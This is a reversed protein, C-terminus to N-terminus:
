VVHIYFIFCCQADYNIDYMIKFYYTIVKIYVNVLAMNNKAYIYLEDQILAAISRGNDDTKTLLEPHDKSPNWYGLTCIDVKKRNEIM